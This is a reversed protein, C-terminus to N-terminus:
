NIERRRRELDDLQNALQTWQEALAKFMSRTAPEISEQAKRACESARERCERAELVGPMLSELGAGSRAESGACEPKQGKGLAGIPRVLLDFRPSGAFVKDNELMANDGTVSRHSEVVMHNDATPDAASM